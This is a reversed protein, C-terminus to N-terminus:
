SSGSWSGLESISQSCPAQHECIDLIVIGRVKTILM